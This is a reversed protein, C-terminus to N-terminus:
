LTLLTVVVVLIVLADPWTIAWPVVTVKLAETVPEGPKVGVPETTNTTSDSARVAALWDGANPPATPTFGLLRWGNVSPVAVSEPPTAVSATGKLAVGSM